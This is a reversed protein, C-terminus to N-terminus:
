PHSRGHPGEVSSCGRAWCTRLSTGRSRIYCLQPNTTCSDSEPEHSNRFRTEAGDVSIIAAFNIREPRGTVCEGHRNQGVAPNAFLRLRVTHDLREDLGLPALSADAVAQRAVTIFRSKRVM